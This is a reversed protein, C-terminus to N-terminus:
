LTHVTFTLPGLILLYHHYAYSLSGPFPSTAHFSSILFLTSGLFLITFVMSETGVAHTTATVQSWPVQAEHSSGDNLTPWPLHIFISQWLITSYIQSLWQSHFQWACLQVLLTWWHAPYLFSYYFNGGGSCPGSLTHSSLKPLSWSTQGHYLLLWCLFVLETIVQKLALHAFNKM